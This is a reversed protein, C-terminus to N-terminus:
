LQGSYRSSILSTIEELAWHGPYHNLTDSDLDWPTIFVDNFDNAYAVSRPRDRENQDMYDLNLKAEVGTRDFMPTRDVCDCVEICEDSTKQRRILSNVYTKFIDDTVDQGTFKQLAPMMEDILARSGVKEDESAADQSPPDDESTMSATEDLCEIPVTDETTVNPDSISESVSAIAPSELVIIPAAVPLQPAAKRKVGFSKVIPVQNIQAKCSAPAQPENMQSKVQNRGNLQQGNVQNRTRNQLVRTSAMLDQAKDQQQQPQNLCQSKGQDVKQIPVKEAMQPSPSHQSPIVNDLRQSPIENSAVKPIINDDQEMTMIEDKKQKGQQVNTAVKHTENEQKKVLEQQVAMAKDIAKEQKKVHQVNEDKIPENVQKKKEEQVSMTKMEQVTEEDDDDDDDSILNITAVVNKENSFLKRRKFPNTFEVDNVPPKTEQILQVEDDDNDSSSLNFVEPPEGDDKKVSQIRTPMGIRAPQSQLIQEKGANPHLKQMLAENTVLFQEELVKREAPDPSTLILKFIAFYSLVTVPRNSAARNVVFTKFDPHSLPSM